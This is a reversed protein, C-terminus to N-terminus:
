KVPGIQLVNQRNRRLFPLLNVNEYTKDVLISELDTNVCQGIAPLTIFHKCVWSCSIVFNHALQTLAIAYHIPYSCRASM